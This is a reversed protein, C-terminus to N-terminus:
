PRGYAVFRGPHYVNGALSTYGGKIGDPDFEYISVGDRTQSGVMKWHHDDDEGLLIMVHTINSPRVPAYTNEWFLLDGMQVHAIIYDLDSQGGNGAPVDWARNRHRLSEYQDSATRPLDVGAVTRYLWRATNSCDMVWPEHEGPPTWSENYHINRAMLWRAADEFNPKAAGGPTRISPVPALSAQAPTPPAAGVFEPRALPRPTPGAAAPLPPLRTTTVIPPTEAAATPPLPSPTRATRAAPLVTALRSARNVAPSPAPAPVPSSSTLDASGARPGVHPAVVAALFAARTNSSASQRPAGDAGPSPSGSAGTPDLPISLRRGIPLPDDVGPNAERIAEARVRYLWCLRLITDGPQV